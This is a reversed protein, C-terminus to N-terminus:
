GGGLIGDRASMRDLTETVERMRDSEWPLVRQFRRRTRRQPPSAGALEARGAADADAIAEDIWSLLEDFDKRTGEVTRRNEERVAELLTMTTADEAPDCSFGQRELENRLRREAYRDFRTTEIIGLDTEKDVLSIPLLIASM